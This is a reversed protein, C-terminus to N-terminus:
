PARGAAVRAAAPRLEIVAVEPRCGFRVRPASGGEMGIGRNVYLTVGDITQLGSEYFRGDGRSIRIPAGILPLVIQGGHTDGALHLDAKSRALPWASPYHHLFITFASSPVQALASPVLHDGEVAAGALWLEQGRVSLPVAHGDLERAGTGEFVDLHSFWWVEWNGKVAFTPHRSAITRLMKRFVPLGAESNVADGTFVVLDPELSAILDPLEEELRPNPDSHLDSLHVLRISQNLKPSTIVTRTVEPYNPEIFAWIASLVGFATLGLFGGGVLHDRLTLSYADALARRAASRRRVLQGLYRVALMVALAGLVLPVGLRSFDIM